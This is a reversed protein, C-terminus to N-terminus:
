QDFAGLKMLEEELFDIWERRYNSFPSALM